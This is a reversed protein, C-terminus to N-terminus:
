RSAAGHRILMILASAVQVWFIAVMCPSYNQLMMRGVTVRTGKQVVRNKSYDIELNRLYSQRAEVILIYKDRLPAENMKVGNHIVKYSAFM